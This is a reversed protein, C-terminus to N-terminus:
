RPTLEFASGISPKVVSVFSSIESMSVWRWIMIMQHMVAMAVTETTDPMPENPCQASGRSAVCEGNLGGM